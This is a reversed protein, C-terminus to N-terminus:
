KAEAEAEAEEENEDEAEAEAEEDEAEAEAEAEAEEEDEAEAEEDEAEAEEDEAEAEEEDEDAEEDEDTEEDEPFDGPACKFEDLKNLFEEITKCFDKDVTHSVRYQDLWLKIYNSHNKIELKPCHKMNCCCQHIKIKDNNRFLMNSIVKLITIIFITTFVLIFIYM